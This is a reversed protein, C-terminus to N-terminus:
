LSGNVSPIASEAPVARGVESTEDASRRTIQPGTNSELNVYGDIELDDIWVDITGPASYANLLILDVYAERSDIDSGFQTRLVRAEQELLRRIDRIGLQQWQGVDTYMDGRLLSSIPQGTGRDINRPFIVRAMLQLSPRDAKVYLTPKFEQILPARGISHVLPLFTGNGVTLRFHECAQGSHSERFPRDHALVRVGCNAEKSVQWTREPGEFSDRLQAHATTAIFLWVALRLSPLLFPRLSTM